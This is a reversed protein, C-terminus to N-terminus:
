LFFSDISPALMASKPSKEPRKEAKGTQPNTAIGLEICTIKFGRKKYTECWESAAKKAESQTFGLSYTHDYVANDSRGVALIKFDKLYTAM